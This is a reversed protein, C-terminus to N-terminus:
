NIPADVIQKGSASATAEIKVVLSEQQEDDGAELARKWTAVAQENEGIQNYLDGLHDLITADKPLERTARELPGQADAYQKMQFYVWGLSDLYAGNTADTALARQILDLAEDLREGREALCYGLFNLSPGHQPDLRFAERMHIESRDFRGQRYLFDGLYYHASVEDPSNEVWRRYIAEALDKRGADDYREALQVRAFRGEGAIALEVVPEAADWRNREIWMTAEHYAALGEREQEQLWRIIHTLEDWNKGAIAARARLDLSEVGESEELQDLLVTVQDLDNEVLLLRVVRRRIADRYNSEEAVDERVVLELGTSFARIAGSIDGQDTLIEGLLVQADPETQIEAALERAEDAADGLRGMQRYMRALNYRLGSDGPRAKVALELAATGEEDRGLKLLAEGFLAHSFTARRESLAGAALIEVVDEWASLKNSLQAALQLLGVDDPHSSLYRLATRLAEPERDGDLFLRVLSIAASRDGPRDKLLQQFAAIAGDINGGQLHLQAMRRLVEADVSGSALLRGYFELAKQRSAPNPRSGGLAQMAHLDALFRIAEASERDKELATRALDEAEQRRGMGLMLKAGQIYVGPADPQAAIAARVQAAAKRLDGKRVAFVSRMLHAYADGRRATEDAQAKQSNPTAHVAVSSGVGLTLAITLAVASLRQMRPTTFRRDNM